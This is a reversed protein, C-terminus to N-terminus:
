ASFRQCMKLPRIARSFDPGEWSVAHTTSEGSATFAHRGRLLYVSLGRALLSQETAPQLCLTGGSRKAKTPIVSNNRLQASHGLAEM